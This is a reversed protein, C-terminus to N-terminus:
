SQTSVDQDVARETEVPIRVCNVRRVRRREVTEVVLRLGDTEIADGPKPIRGLERQILGAVTGQAREDWYLDLENLVDEVLLRGDVVISGDDCNEIRPLERDYEDEIEGVIEELIDEITVVGATGGYEDVM